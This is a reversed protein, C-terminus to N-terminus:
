DDDSQLRNMKRRREEKYDYDPDFEMTGFLEIAKLQKHHQIFETLAENVTTVKSTSSSLEMAEALLQSDISVITTM